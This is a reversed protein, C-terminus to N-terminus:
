SPGLNQEPKPPREFFLYTFTAVAV